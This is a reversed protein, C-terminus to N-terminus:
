RMKLFANVFIKNNVQPYSHCELYTIKIDMSATFNTVQIM